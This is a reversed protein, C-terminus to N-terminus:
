FHKAVKLRLSVHGRTDLEILHGHFALEEFVIYDWAALSMQLSPISSPVLSYRNEVLVSLSEAAALAISIKGLIDTKGLM